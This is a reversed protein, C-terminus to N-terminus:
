QLLCDTSIIRDLCINKQDQLGLIGAGLKTHIKSIERNESHVFNIQHIRGTSLNQEMKETITYNYQM